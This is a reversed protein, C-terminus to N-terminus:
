KGLNRVTKVAENGFIGKLLLAEVLTIVASSLSLLTHDTTM